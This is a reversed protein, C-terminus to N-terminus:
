TDNLAMDTSSFRRLAPAASAKKKGTPKSPSPAAQKSPQQKPGTWAATQATSAIPQRRKSGVLIPAGVASDAVLRRRKMRQRVLFGRSMRQIVVAARRRRDMMEQQIQQRRHARQQRRRELEARAHLKALHNRVKHQIVRAADAALDDKIRQLAQKARYVRMQSRYFAQIRAASENALQSRAAAMHLRVLMGRVHRQIVTSAHTHEARELRRKDRLERRIERKFNLQQQKEDFKAQMRIKHEARLKDSLILRKKKMDLSGLSSDTYPGHLFGETFDMHKAHPSVPSLKLGVDQFDVHRGYDFGSTTRYWPHMDRREQALKGVSMTNTERIPSQALRPLTLHQNSTRSLGYSNLSLM